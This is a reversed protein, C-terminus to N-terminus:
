LRRSRIFFRSVASQSPAWGFTSKCETIIEAHTMKGFRALIFDRVELHQEIPSLPFLGPKKADLGDLRKKAEILAAYDALTITVVKVGRFSARGLPPSQVDKLPRKKDTKASL